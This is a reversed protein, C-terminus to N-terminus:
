ELMMHRVHICTRLFLDVICYIFIIIFLFYYFLFYIFFLLLYYIFLLFYYFLLLYFIFRSYKYLGSYVALIREQFLHMSFYPASQLDPSVANGVCVDSM